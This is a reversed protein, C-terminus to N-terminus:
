ADSTGDAAPMEEDSIARGRRSVKDQGQGGGIVRDLMELNKPASNVESELISRNFVAEILENVEVSLYTRLHITLELGRHQRVCM